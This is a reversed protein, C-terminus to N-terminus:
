QEEGKEQTVLCQQWLVGNCMEMQITLEGDTEFSNMSTYVRGVYKLNSSVEDGKVQLMGSRKARDQRNESTKVESMQSKSM